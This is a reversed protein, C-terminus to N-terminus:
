HQESVLKLGLAVLAAGTVAEIIRSVSRRRVYEGAISLVVAYAVLWAFTM